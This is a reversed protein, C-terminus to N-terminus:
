ELVDAAAQPDVGAQALYRLSSQDASAEEARTHALFNRQAAQGSGIALGTAAEANGAAVAAASLLLGLKGITAANRAAAPRRTLHGNAIHAAEHAIVAQVQAANEVRMLLGAHLFITRADAVFANLSDDNIIIIRTSNSLGAAQLIPQAVQRLAYEIEADRIVGRAAAPLALALSLLLTALLRIM